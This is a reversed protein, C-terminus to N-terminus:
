QLKLYSTHANIVKLPLEQSLPRTLLANHGCKTKRLYDEKM